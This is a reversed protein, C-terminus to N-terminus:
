WVASRHLAGLEQSSEPNHRRKKCADHGSGKSLRSQYLYIRGMDVAPFVARLESRREALDSKAGSPRSTTSEDPGLNALSFETNRLFERRTPRRPGIPLNSRRYATLEQDTLARDRKVTRSISNDNRGTSRAPRPPYNRVSSSTRLRTPRSDIHQPSHNPGNTDTFFSQTGIASCAETWKHNRAALHSPETNPFAFNRTESREQIESSM